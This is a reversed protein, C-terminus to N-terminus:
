RRRGQWGFRNQGGPLRAGDDDDGAQDRTQEEPEEDVGDQVLHDRLRSVHQLDSLIGLRRRTTGRTTVRKARALGWVHGSAVAGDVRERLSLASATSFSHITAHTAWSAGSLGRCRNSAWM